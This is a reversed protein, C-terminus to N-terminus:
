GRRRQLEENIAPVIQQLDGIVAYHARSVMPADPDTNIALITKAGQIGAWHQIAGSIGCPIYLDPAIRSGTQGVQESHPRWGLSTVVRSVGLAGGLLEALQLLPKFGDASGAGRGAGVVVRASTLAATTDAAKEGTRVVKGLLDADTVPAASVTVPPTTPQEAPVVECAHGAVSFVAAQSSLQMAELAAGGVVQRTVVLPDLGDVSVVNAAMALGTRAAVHALIENGRHTGAATMVRAGTTRAVEVLASAWAAASYASLREDVVRHVHAVGQEGLHAMAVPTLDREPPGVVVAHVPMGGARQGVDRAVTLTERSVEAVGADDTEVLVVIM